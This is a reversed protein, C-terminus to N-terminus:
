ATRIFAVGGAVQFGGVPVSTDTTDLSGTVKQLQIQAGSSPLAQTSSTGVVWAAASNDYFLAANDGSNGREVVFGADVGASSGGLDSNLILTNDAIELTETSTTITAGGVTLDGTLTMGVFTPSDSTAVSQGIAVNTGNVTVGTGAGVALSVGGSAGGGTLGNGASVNTIDGVNTTFGSNNNFFSIPIDGFGAQKAGSASDDYVVLTDADGGLADGPSFTGIDDLNGFDLSLNGSGTVTGSLGKTTGVSTVTGTNTTFGSDNSFISLGIESAAKRRDAGNDLVIFEDSTVMGSTMDTLESLDVNLTVAGSDGGGSLGTGATVGSIDGAVTAWQLGDTSDYQLIQGNSASNFTDLAAADVSADALESAGVANAAIQSATITNAAIQASTVALADIESTGVANAAIEASDVCNDVLAIGISINASGNFSQSTVSADGEVGITRSTTLTASSGTTNQSIVGSSSESVVKQYTAM